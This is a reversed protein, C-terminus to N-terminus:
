GKNIQSAEKQQNSDVKANSKLSSDSGALDVFHLTSQFDAKRQKKSEAVTGFLTIRFITHSRSSNDNKETKRKRSNKVCIDVFNKFSMFDMVEIDKVELLSKTKPDQRPSMPRNMKLDRIEQNYLEFGTIQVNFALHANRRIHRFIEEGAFHIMGKQSESGFMTHTKGAGTQGYAVVAGNIGDLFSKVTKTCIGYIDDNSAQGDFARDFTFSTRGKKAAVPRGNSSVQIVTAKDPLAKWGVSNSLFSSSRKKTENQNLNRLRLVVIGRM